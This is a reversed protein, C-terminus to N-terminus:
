SLGLWRSGFVLGRLRRGFDFVVVGVFLDVRNFFSVVIKVYFCRMRYYFGWGFVSILRFSVEIGFGVWFM